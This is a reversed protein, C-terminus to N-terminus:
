INVRLRKAREKFAAEGGELIGCVHNRINVNELGGSEYSINPLKGPLHSGARAIIIQDSDANVVLNANHTVIIIQRRLKAERFLPVLEDFISKPDLNEEPQDIILPRLDEKDIALYLLLLVIGRTGPSLQQIDVGDYQIGYQLSIHDTNYMWEAFEKVWNAFEETNKREVQSHELLGAEHESRFRGIALKIEAATGHEWTSKLIENAISCLTGKGRFPGSKRLDLLNEGKSAWENINAKRSVNFTLKGLSGSANELTEKLPKYLSNLIEQEEIISDFIEGYALNREDILKKSRVDSGEANLVKDKLMLFEKEEGSIRLSLDALKKANDTDIGILLNLRKIEASLLEYSLNTPDFDEPLLSNTLNETSLEIVTGKIKNVENTALEIKSQILGDVHGVFDVQFNNWEDDDLGADLHKGKLATYFNKFQLQRVGIINQKLSKLSELRLKVKDLKLRVNECAVTVSQLLHTSTNGAAKSLLVQQDKKLSSVEQEKESLQVKLKVLSKKVLWEDMLEASRDSIIDQQDSRRQRIVKTKSQLIDNFNAYGVRSEAPHAIFIVREIEQLLQDTVGESSCLQEVFQQSLYQVRPEDFIEELDIDSIANDTPPGSEWNLKIALQLLHDKARHVFSTRNLHNSIAYGGTAILDALATKGSGRAGIITVLGANLQISEPTLWGGNTFNVSSITKSPTNTYQPSDGVYVRFTPEICIQKLSEFTIDGKIWTYRNEAPKGVRDNVHADSGHICPKIGFWSQNLEEISAAGKGLWFDRDGARSTFMIKSYKEITRRIQSFGSDNALGSTGDKGTAVAFLINEMAWNSNQYERLLEMFTVKFQNTGIELAKKEEINSGNHDRGLKILDSRNCSYTDTGINFRLRNLFRELEELHNEDVPSILLHGNIASNSGTGLNYRLEVNPFILDVDKLRGSAKYELIKRYSELSYYDTIGLARIRPTSTEIRILFDEWPDEGKYQDNLITGPTHIHPEWRHWISGKPNNIVNM